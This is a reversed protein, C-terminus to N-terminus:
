AFSRSCHDILIRLAWAFKKQNPLRNFPSRFNERWGGVFPFAFFTLTGHYRPAFYFASTGVQASDRIAITKRSSQSLLSLTRLCLRFRRFFDAFFSCFIFVPALENVEWFDNCPEGGISRRCPHDPHGSVLAFTQFSDVRSYSHVVTVKYPTLIDRWIPSRSDEGYFLVPITVCGSVFRFLPCFAAVPSPWSSKVVM